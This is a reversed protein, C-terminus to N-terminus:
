EKVLPIWGLLAKEKPDGPVILDQNLSDSTFIIKCGKNSEVQSKMNKERGYNMTIFIVEHGRAGLEESLYLLPMFHGM